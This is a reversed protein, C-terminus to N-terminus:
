KLKKVMNILWVLFVIIMITKIIQLPHEARRAARWAHRARGRLRQYGRRLENNDFTEVSGQQALKAIAAKAAEPSLECRKGSESGSALKCLSKFAVKDKVFSGYDASDHYSLKAHGPTMMGADFVNGGSDFGLCKEGADDCRKEFQDTWTFPADPQQEIGVHPLYYYNSHEAM